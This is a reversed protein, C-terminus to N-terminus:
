VVSEYPAFQQLFRKWKGEHLSTIRKWGESEEGFIIRAWVLLSALQIDALTIKDGTFLLDKGEGNADLSVKLKALGSELAKWDDETGIEELPKGFKAERTSRFYVQSRPSLLGNISNLLVFLLPAMVSPVILLLTVTQLAATSAPILQPTDPYRKDLYKIIETSDVVYSKTSPDYIVPLSYYGKGDAGTESPPVGLKKLREEIDPFEIWETRYKLGKYNLAYRPLV